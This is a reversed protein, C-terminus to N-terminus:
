TAAKWSGFGCWILTATTAGPSAAALAAAFSFASEPPGNWALTAVLSASARRCIRSSSITPARTTSGLPLVSRRIRAPAAPPASLPARCSPISSTSDLWPRATSTSSM